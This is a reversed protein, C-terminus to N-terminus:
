NWIIVGQKMEQLIQMTAEYAGAKNKPLWLSPQKKRHSSQGSSVSNRSSPLRTLQTTSLPKHASIPLRAVRASSMPPRYSPVNYSTGPRSQPLVQAPQLRNRALGRSLQAQTTELLTKTHETYMKEDNTVRFLTRGTKEQDGLSGGDTYTTQGTTGPRQTKSGLYRNKIVAGSATRVLDLDSSCM